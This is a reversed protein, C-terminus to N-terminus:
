SNLKPILPAFLGLIAQHIEEDRKNRWNELGQCSGEDTGYRMPGGDDLIADVIAAAAVTGPTPPNNFQKQNVEFLLDAMPKYAPFKVAGAPSKTMSDANLGSETFGPLIEVVRVGFPALEVRLTEGMGSLGWKAARYPALFPVPTILSGSTINCIVGRGAKRLIPIARKAMDLAGFFNVDFVKRFEDMTTEEVPYSNPRIGANNILVALNDPFQFDGPKTVDLVEISVKGPLGATARVVAEGMGEHLILALVDYGRRAIETALSLGIGQGAGTVAWIGGANRSM